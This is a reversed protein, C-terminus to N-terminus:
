VAVKAKIGLHPHYDQIDFDSFELDWPYMGPEWKKLIKLTPSLPLDHMRSLQLKVQDQHDVYIHVDGLQSVMKGPKLGTCWCLIHLLTAYSAINFPIGLFMDCSRQVTILSLVGESVDCQFAYHCPPLRMRPLDYPNWASVIHRRSDPNARLGDVLAKVQDVGAIPFPAGPPSGFFNRWQAGYVPGLNGDADAWEDWITVGHDHLFKINTDGRLFWLLEVLVSKFHVRKSTLLPFRGDQLDFEMMAGFSRITDTGTRNAKQTGNSLVDALLELYPKDLFSSELYDVKCEITGDAHRCVVEGQQNIEKLRYYCRNKSFCNEDIDDKQIIIRDRSLKLM